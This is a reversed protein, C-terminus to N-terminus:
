SSQQSRISSAAVTATTRTCPVIAPWRERWRKRIARRVPLVTIAIALSLGGAVIGLVAAAGVQTAHAAANVLFGPPATAPQLLVFNTVYGATMQVILLAGATRGANMATTM